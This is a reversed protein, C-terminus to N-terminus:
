NDTEDEEEEEYISDMTEECTECFYPGDIQPNDVDININMGRGCCDCFYLMKGINM